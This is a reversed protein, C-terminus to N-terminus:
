VGEAIGELHSIDNAKMVRFEGDEYEVVTIGTNLLHPTEERHSQLDAGELAVFILIRLAMGHSVVLINGEPQEDLIQEVAQKTREKVQHYTEGKSVEAKYHAPNELMMEYEVGYNKLIDVFLEGEWIGFSMERLGDLTKVQLDRDRLIYGTTDITRKSPSSYVAAFDVDRLAEGTAIAGEIGETILPSDGWGQMRRALNWETKGHRVFYFTRKGM